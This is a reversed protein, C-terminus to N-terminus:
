FNTKLCLRIEPALGEPRDALHTCDIYADEPHHIPIVADKLLHQGDVQVAKFVGVHISEAEQARKGTKTYQTEHPPIIFGKRPFTLFHKKQFYNKVFPSADYLSCGFERCAREVFM